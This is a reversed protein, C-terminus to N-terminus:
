KDIELDANKGVYPGIIEALPGEEKAVKNKIFSLHRELFYQDIRIEENKEDTLKKPSKIGHGYRRQYEIMEFVVDDYPLCKFKYPPGINEKRRQKHRKLQNKTDIALQVAVIWDDYSMLDNIDYEDVSKLSLLKNMNVGLKALGVYLRFLTTAAAKGTTEFKIYVDDSLGMICAFEKRKFYLHKRLKRIILMFNKLAEEDERKIQETPQSLM